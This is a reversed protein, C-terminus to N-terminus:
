KVAILRDYRGTFDRLFVLITYDNSTEYFSGEIPTSQHYDRINDPIYIYKYEQYGTKLPLTIQYCAEQENYSLTREELPLHNFAQGELVIRGSSFPPSSLSFDVLHYDGQTTVDSVDRSRIIQLGNFDEENIRRTYLSLAQRNAIYHMKGKDERKSSFGLGLGISSSHDLRLFENGAWFLPADDQDYVWKDGAQRTPHKLTICPITNSYNQLVQVQLDLPNTMGLKSLGTLAIEIQQHTDGKTIHQKTIHKHSIELLQEPVYIPIQLLPTQTDDRTYVSLKYLGSVRFQIHENPLTLTYHQYPISTGISSTPFPMDTYEFGSLAEAHQLESPIGEANHHELKYILDPTDSGLIDFSIEISKGKGLAIVALRQQVKNTDEILSIELAGVKNSLNRSQAKASHLTIFWLLFLIGLIKQSSTM